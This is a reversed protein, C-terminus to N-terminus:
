IVGYLSALLDPDLPILIKEGAKVHHETPKNNFTAIIWWNNPSQYYQSALKYFRDGSKWVHVDYDIFDLEEETLQRFYSAPYLFVGDLNRKLKIQKYLEKKDKYITNRELFRDLDYNPM